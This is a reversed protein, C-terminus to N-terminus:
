NLRKFGNHCIQSNLIKAVDMGDECKAIMEFIPELAKFYNDIIDQTHELCAFIINSALYGQALMEQTIL